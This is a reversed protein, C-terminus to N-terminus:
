PKVPIEELTAGDAKEGVRRFGIRPDDPNWPLPGKKPQSGPAPLPFILSRAAHHAIAGTQQHHEQHIHGYFVTVDRKTALLELAAAGDATFWDWDKKLDFLPRHAFVVIRADDPLRALEGKLWALQATGLRADPDSVNDLAFFHVGGHEFAYHTEGFIERFAAGGDPAADHEGPLFRVSAVKLRAVMTRVETMRKRREVGDDTRHTLDGTFVVFAPVSGAAVLADIAELAKPLTRAAEPNAPGEYGHHTDSLQLFFFDDVRPAPGPPPLKAPSSGVAVGSCGGLASAVVVGVGVSFLQLVHRRALPKEM